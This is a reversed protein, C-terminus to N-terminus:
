FELSGIAIRDGTAKDFLIISNGTLNFAMRSDVPYVGALEMAAMLGAAGAGVVVADCDITETPTLVEKAEKAEDAFATPIGTLSLTAATAASVASCDAVAAALALHEDAAASEHAVQAIQVIVAHDHRALAHALPADVEGLNAALKAREVQQQALDEVLAAHALAAQHEIGVVDLLIDVHWEAGLREVELAAAQAVGVGKDKGLGAAQNQAIGLSM